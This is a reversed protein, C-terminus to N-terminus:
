SESPFIFEFTTGAGVKTYLAIEGNLRDALSKVIALGLGHSSEGGTPRASLKQFKQFLRKQDEPSIGPGEDKVYLTPRGGLKRVGVEVEKGAPSFKIANSIFNDLIRGIDRPDTEVQLDGLELNPRLHIEKKQAYPQFSSIRNYVFDRLSLEVSNGNSEPLNSAEAETIMLLDQILEAGGESTKGILGLMEQGQASLGDESKLMGLIAMIKQFPAKLDHAVFGILGNKEHMAAELAQNKQDVADKQRLIEKQQSKIKENTLSLERYATRVKRNLRMNVFFLGGLLLAIAGLGVILTWQFRQRSELVAQDKLLLERDKELIELKAAKQDADFVAIVENLKNEERSQFISDKRANYDQITEYARRYNGRAYELQSRFLLAEHREDFYSTWNTAAMTSDLYKEALQYRGLDIYAMAINNYTNPLGSPYAEHKLRKAEMLHDLAEEYQALETLLFGYNNHVMSNRLLNDPDPYRTLITEYLDLAKSNSDMDNYASALNILPYSLQPNEMQSLLRFSTLFYEECNSYLKTSKHLNGLANYVWAVRNTDKRQRAVAMCRQYNEFAQDFLGASEYLNGLRYSSVSMGRKFDLSDSIDLALKMSQVRVPLDDKGLEDELGWLKEVLVTDRNNEELLQKLQESGSAACLVASSTLLVLCFFLRQIM